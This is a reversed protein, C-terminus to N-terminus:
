TSFMRGAFTMFYYYRVMVSFEARQYNKNDKGVFKALPGICGVRVCNKCIMEKVVTAWDYGMAESTLYHEPKLYWVFKISMLGHIM